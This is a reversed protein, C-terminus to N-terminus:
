WLDEHESISNRRRYMPGPAVEMAAGIVDDIYSLVSADTPPLVALSLCMATNRESLIVAPQFDRFSEVGAAGPPSIPGYKTTILAGAAVMLSGHFRVVNNLVCRAYILIFGAREEKLFLQDRRLIAHFCFTTDRLFVNFFTSSRVWM